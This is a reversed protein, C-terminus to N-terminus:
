WSPPRGRGYTGDVKELHGAAVLHQQAWVVLDGRSGDALIAFGRAVPPATARALRRGVWNWEKGDTAQWSWWSVGRAGYAARWDGSGIVEARPPDEYTQGLPFIPRAYPRNFRYTHEFNAPVTTGITRWYM